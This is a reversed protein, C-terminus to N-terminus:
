NTGCFMIREFKLAFGDAIQNNDITLINDTITYCSEFANTIALPNFGEGCSTTSLISSYTYTGTPLGDYIADTIQNDNVITLTNNSEDFYWTISGATFNQNAGAFGGSVNVLTWMGNIESNAVDKKSNNQGDDSQCGNVIILFFIYVLIKFKKM